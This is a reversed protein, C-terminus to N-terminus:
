FTCNVATPDLGCIRVGKTSSFDKFFNVIRADLVNVLDSGKSLNGRSNIGVIERSRPEGSSYGAGGSDGFCVGV